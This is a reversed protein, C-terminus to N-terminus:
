VQWPWPGSGWDWRPGPNNSVGFQLLPGYKQEFEQKIKRSFDSYQKFQQLANEDDPHTDLYLTLEVLVFDAAQIQRMLQYYEDDIQKAM